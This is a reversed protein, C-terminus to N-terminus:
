KKIIGEMMTSKKFIVEYKFEIEIIKKASETFEYYYKVLFSDAYPVGKTYIETDIVFQKKPGLWYM